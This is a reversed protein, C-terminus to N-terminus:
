FPITAILAHGHKLVAQDIDLALDLQSDTTLSSLLQKCDSEM